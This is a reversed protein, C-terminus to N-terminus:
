LGLAQGEEVKFDGLQKQRDDSPGTKLGFPKMLANRSSLLVKAIKPAGQFFAKVTDEVHLTQMTEFNCYYADEYDIRAFSKEALSGTPLSGSYVVIPKKNSSSIM